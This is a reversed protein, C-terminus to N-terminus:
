RAVWPRRAPTFPMRWSCLKPPVSLYHLFYLKALMSCSHLGRAAGAAGALQLSPDKGAQKLLIRASTCLAVTLKRLYDHLANWASTRTAPQETAKASLQALLRCLHVEGAEQILALFDNRV